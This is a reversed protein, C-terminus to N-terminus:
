KLARVAQVVREVLRQLDFPKELVPAGSEALLDSAGSTEIILAKPNLLRIRRAVDEGSGDGLDRDIIAAVVRKPDAEVIELAAARSGAEAVALGAASLERACARRLGREDDAVLVLDKRTVSINVARMMQSVRSRAPLCIAFRAGGEPSQGVIVGGGHSTATTQVLFLGLGTGHEGKTTYGPEFLKARVRADIGPGDDDVALVAWEGPVHWPHEHDPRSLREAILRVTVRGGREGVADRANLVLNLLAQELAHEDGRIELPDDPPVLRLDVWKQPSGHPSGHEANGAFLGRALAVVKSAVAMPDIGRRKARGADSRGVERLRAVLERGGELSAMIEDLPERADPRDGVMRSLSRLNALASSVVNGFDHALGRALLGALKVRELEVARDLRTGEEIEAAVVRALDLLLDLDNAAWARPTMDYASLTGVFTGDRLMLPVSVGARLGLRSEFGGMVRPEESLIVTARTRDAHGSITDALPLTMGETVGLGGRDSVALLVLDAGVVRGVMALSGGLLRHVIALVAQAIPLHNAADM